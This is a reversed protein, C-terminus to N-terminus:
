AEVLPYMIHELSNCHLVMHLTFCHPAARSGACMPPRAGGRVWYFGCEAFGVLHGVCTHLYFPFMAVLAICRLINPYYGRLRAHKAHFARM